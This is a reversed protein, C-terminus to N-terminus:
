SLRSGAGTRVSLGMCVYSWYAYLRLVSKKVKTELVYVPSSLNGIAFTMPERSSLRSCSEYIFVVTTYGTNIYVHAAHLSVRMCEYSWYAYMQLMSEEIKVNIWTITIRRGKLPIPNTRILEAPFAGM